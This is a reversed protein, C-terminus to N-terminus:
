SEYEDIFRVIYNLVWYKENDNKFKIGNLYSKILSIRHTKMRLEDYIQYVLSFYHLCEQPADKLIDSNVLYNYWEYNLSDELFEDLNDKPYDDRYRAIAEKIKTTNPICDIPSNVYKSNRETGLLYFLYGFSEDERIVNFLETRVESCIDRDIEDEYKELNPEDKAMPNGQEYLEKMYLYQKRRQDSYLLRSACEDTKKKDTRYPLLTNIVVWIENIYKFEDLHLAIYEKARM